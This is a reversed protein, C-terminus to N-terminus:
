DEVIRLIEDVLTKRISCLDFVYEANGEISLFGESFMLDCINELVDPNRIEAIFSKLKMLDGFSYGNDALDSLEWVHGNQHSHSTALSSGSRGEIHDHPEPLYCSGREVDPSAVSHVEIGAIDSYRANKEHPSPLQEVKRENTEESDDTLCSSMSIPSSSRDQSLNHIAESTNTTVEDNRFSDGCAVYSCPKGAHTLKPPSYREVPLSEIYINKHQSSTAHLGRTIEFEGQNTIKEELIFDFHTVKHRKHKKTVQMSFDSKHVITPSSLLEQEYDKNKHNSKQHEDVHYSSKRIFEGNFPKLPSMNVYASSPSSPLFVPSTYAFSPLELSSDKLRPKLYEDGDNADHENNLDEMLSTIDPGATDSDTFILSSVTSVSSSDSSHTRERRRREDGEEHRTKSAQADGAPLRESGPLASDHRARKSDPEHLRATDEVIKPKQVLFSKDRSCHGSSTYNEQLSFLSSADKSQQTLVSLGIKCGSVSMDSKNHKSHHQNPIRNSKIDGVIDKATEPSVTLRDTGHKSDDHGKMSYNKKKVKNSRYKDKLPLVLGSVDVGGGTSHTQKDSIDKTVRNEGSPEVCSSHTHAVDTGWSSHTHAVDTGLEALLKANHTKGKAPHANTRPSINNSKRHVSLKVNGDSDRAISCGDIFKKEHAHEVYSSRESSSMKNLIDNRSSNKDSCSESSKRSNSAKISSSVDDSHHSKEKLEREKSHSHSTRLTKGDHNDKSHREGECMKDKKAISAHCKKSSDAIAEQSTSSKGLDVLPVKKGHATHKDIRCPSKKSRHLSTKREKHFFGSDEQHHAHPSAVEKVRLLSTDKRLSHPLPKTDHLLAVEDHEPSMSKKKQCSTFHEESLEARQGTCPSFGARRHSPGDAKRQPMENTSCLSTVREKHVSHSFESQKHSTCRAKVELCGSSIDKSKHGSGHSTVQGSKGTKSPSAIEDSTRKKGVYQM